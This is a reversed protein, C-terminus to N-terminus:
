LFSTYIAIFVNVVFYIDISTKKWLSETPEICIYLESIGDPLIGPPNLVVNPLHREHLKSRAVPQGFADRKDKASFVDM